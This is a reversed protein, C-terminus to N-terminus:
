GFSIGERAVRGCTANKTVSWGPPWMPESGRYSDNTTAREEHASM